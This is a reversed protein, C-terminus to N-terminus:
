SPPQPETLMTEGRQEQTSWSPDISRATIKIKDQSSLEWLLAPRRGHWRLSFSLKGWITEFDRVDVSRGFWDPALDPLLDIHQNQTDSVFRNLLHTAQQTIPSEHQYTSRLDHKELLQCVASATQPACKLLARAALNVTDKDIAAAAGEILLDVLEDLGSYKRARLDRSALARLAAVAKHGHLPTTQTTAVVSARIHDAEKNLGAIDFLPATEFRHHSKECGAHVILDALTQQWRTAIDTGDVELTLANATIARWGSAIEAPTAIKKPPRGQDVVILSLKQHHPLTMVLGATVTAGRVTAPVCSGRVTAPTSLLTQNMALWPDDHSNTAFLAGAQRQPKIWVRGQKKIANPTVALEVADAAVVNAIVALAVAQNSTNEFELALYRCKGDNAAALRAVVDGTATRMRTEYAPANNIRTQRTSKTQHSARWKGDSSIGWEITYTNNVSGIRGYRDVVAQPGNLDGVVEGVLSARTNQTPLKRRTRQSLKLKVAM